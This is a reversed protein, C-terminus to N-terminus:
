CTAGDGAFLPTLARVLDHAVRGDCDTPVRLILGNPWEVEITGPKPARPGRPDAILRVPVLSRSAPAHGDRRASRASTRHGRVNPARLRRRWVFFSNPSVGAERCFQAISMGSAPQREILERWFREREGSTKKAM